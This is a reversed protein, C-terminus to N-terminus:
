AISVSSLVNQVNQKHSERTGVPAKSTYNGTNRINRAVGANTRSSSFADHTLTILRTAPTHRLPTGCPHHHKTALGPYRSSNSSQPVARTVFLPEHCSWLKVLTEPILKLTGSDVLCDTSGLAYGGSHQLARNEEGHAAMDDMNDAQFGGTATENDITVLGLGQLQIM